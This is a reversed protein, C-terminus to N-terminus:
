QIIVNSEGEGAAFTSNSSNANGATSAQNISTQNNSETRGAATGEYSNVVSNLLSEKERQSLSDQRVISHIAGVVAASQENAPLDNITNIVAVIQQQKDALSGGGILIDDIAPNTAGGNLSLTEVIGPAEMDGEGQWILKYNYNDLDRNLEAVKISEDTRDVGTVTGVALLEAAGTTKDTWPANQHRRAEITGTNDISSAAIGIIGYEPDASSDFNAQDAYIVGTNIVRNNKSSIQYGTNGAENFRREDVARINIGYHGHANIAGANTVANAYIAAEGNAVLITGQGLSVTNGLGSKFYDTFYYEDLYAYPPDEDYAAEVGLKSGAGILVEGGKISSSGTIDVKGGLVFITTTDKGNLNPNTISVNDLAITNNSNADKIHISTFASDDDDLDRGGFQWQMTNAASIIVKPKDQTIQDGVVISSNRMDVQGGLMMVSYEEDSYGNTLTIKSDTLTIKNDPTATLTALTSDNSDAQKFEKGAFVDLWNTTLNAKDFTITHGQINISDSTINGAIVVRNAAQSEFSATDYHEIAGNSHQMFNITAKDAAVFSSDMSTEITVGPAITVSGGILGLYGMPKFTAGNQIEIAGAVAQQSGKTFTLPHEDDTKWAGVLQMFNDNSVALTSLVLNSANITAGSGVLVGNPNVLFISGNNNGNLTGNLESMQSGTVRNLVAFADAFNFNVTEGNAISFSSWDIVGNAGVAINMVNGSPDNVTIQGKGETVTWGAPMAFAPTTLLMAALTAGALARNIHRKFKRQIKM